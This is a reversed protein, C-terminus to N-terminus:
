CHIFFPPGLHAPMCSHSSCVEWPGLRGSPHFWFVAWIPIAGPVVEVMAPWLALTTSIIRSIQTIDIEFFM